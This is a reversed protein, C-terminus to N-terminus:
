GRGETGLIASLVPLMLDAHERDIASSEQGAAGTGGAAGRGLSRVKEGMARREPPHFGSFSRRLLPLVEVFTEPSLERLWRDLAAWLGDQQLLLLGTGRLLGEVWAAARPAPTAPSLALGALRQLEADQLARGELLLRCCWGQVLGHIGERELLRRLADQWEARQAPSDLLAVSEAAMGMAAAM